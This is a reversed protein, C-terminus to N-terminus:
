IIKKFMAYAILLMVIGSVLRMWKRKNGRLNELKKPNVGKYVVLLIIFLPLVFIVNYIFLYFIAKTRVNTSLLSIIALYVGGTCPLEFLAVFAGLILSATFTAKKIYKEILPKKSEPIKFSFGKGYWFFDKVNVIGVIVLIVIAINRIISNILPIQLAKLLGLGALFYVLFVMSIYTIGVSIMKKKAKISLLYILLFILVGFACPNISDALAASLVALITINKKSTEEASSETLNNLLIEKPSKIGDPYKNIANEIRLKDEDSPKPSSCGILYDEGIILTPVGGEKYIDKGYKKSINAFFELNTKNQYVEFYEIKLKPNEKELENLYEKLAACHPCGIGWFMYGHILGDSPINSVLNDEKISSAYSLIFTSTILFITILLKFNKEIKTKSM